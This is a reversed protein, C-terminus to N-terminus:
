WTSRSPSASSLSSPSAFCECECPLPLTMLLYHNPDYRFVQDALYGVKHGQLIVIMRPQYLVPTSHYETTYILSVQDVPSPHHRPRHRPPGAQRRSRHLPDAHSARPNQKPQKTPIPLFLAPHQRSPIPQRSFFAIVNKRGPRWISVFAIDIFLKVRCVGVLIRNPLPWTAWSRSCSGRSARM